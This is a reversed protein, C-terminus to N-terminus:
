IIKDHSFPEKRSLCNTQSCTQCSKAPVRCLSTASATLGILATISKRPSLMYSETLHLDIMKAMSLKLMQPQFHIDFDGYGPSFRPLLMFGQKAFAARILNEVADATAEIATTAAADLLLAYTYDGQKFYASISQEITSGVTASLVIVREASALHRIISQGTLFISEVSTQLQGTSSNYMYDQWVAKPTCLSHAERCAAEILQQSFPTQHLGAYRRTENVDIQSLSPNFFHM